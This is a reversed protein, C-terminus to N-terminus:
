MIRLMNRDIAESRLFLVRYKELVARTLRVQRGFDPTVPSLLSIQEKKSKIVLEVWNPNRILTQATTRGNDSYLDNFYYVTINDGADSEFTEQLFHNFDKPRKM